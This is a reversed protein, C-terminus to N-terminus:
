LDEEPIHDQQRWLRESKVRLIQYTVWEKQLIPKISDLSDSKESFVVPELELYSESKVKKVM